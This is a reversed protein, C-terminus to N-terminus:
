KKMRRRAIGLGALGLGLIALTAPEPIITSGSPAFFTFTYENNGIFEGLAFSFSMTLWDHSLLAEIDNFAFFLTDSSADTMPLRWWLDGQPQGGIHMQDFAHPDIINNGTPSNRTISFGYVGDFLGAEDFLGAGGFPDDALPAFIGHNEFLTIQGGGWGAGSGWSDAWVTLTDPGPTQRRVYPMYQMLPQWPDADWQNGFALHASMAIIVPRLEAALTFTFAVDNQCFNGPNNVIDARVNTATLFLAAFALGITYIKSTKM